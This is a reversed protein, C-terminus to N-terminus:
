LPSAFQTKKRTNAILAMSQELFTMQLELLTSKAFKPGDEVPRRRIKKFEKLNKKLIKPISQRFSTDVDYIWRHLTLDDPMDKIALKMEALAFDSVSAASWAILTYNFHIWPIVLM